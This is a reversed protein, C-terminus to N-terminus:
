PPTVVSVELTYTFPFEPPLPNPPVAVSQWYTAPYGGVVVYNTGEPLDVIVDECWGSDLNTGGATAGAQDAGDATDDESVYFAPGPKYIRLFTDVGWGTKAVDDKPDCSAGTADFTQIRIQQGGAAVTFKFYDLDDEGTITLPTSLTGLALDTAQAFPNVIAGSGQHVLIYRKVSAGPPETGVAGCRGAAAIDASEVNWCLRSGDSASSSDCPDRTVGGGAPFFGWSGFVPQTETEPLFGDTNFYWTVGNATRLQAPDTSFVAGITAVTAYTDAAALDLVGDSTGCGLMLFRGSCEALISQVPLGADAYTDQHCIEWGDTQLASIQLPTSVIGEAVPFPPPVTESKPEELCGALAALLPVVLVSIRTRFPHM